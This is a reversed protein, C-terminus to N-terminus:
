SLKVEMNSQNKRHKGEQKGLKKCVECLFEFTFGPM